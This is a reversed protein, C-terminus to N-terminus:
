DHRAEAGIAITTIVPLEGVSAPTDQVPSSLLVDRIGDGMLAAILQARTLDVRFRTQQALQQAREVAGSILTAADPGPAYILTAAVPVPLVRAVTVDVEVSLPRVDEALLAQAVQTVIPDDIRAVRWCRDHSTHAGFLREGILRDDASTTNAPADVRALLAVKVRGPHDAWVDVQRVDVSVSM